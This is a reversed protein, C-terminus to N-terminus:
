NRRAADRNFQGLRHLSGEHRTSAGRRPTEWPQTLMSSDKTNDWMGGAELLNKAFTARATHQAPPGLNALFIRPRQGDRALALDSRDRLREFAEGLRHSPLPPLTGAPLAAAGHRSDRKGRAAPPDRHLTRPAVPKNPGGIFGAPRGTEAPKGERATCGVAWNQSGALWPKQCVITEAMCNWLVQCNGAWGHGTGSGGRDQVNIRGGRVNDYLQGCAWRHHPGIDAHSKEALCDLFVTPGVDLHGTVFDHRGNRAYCRQFLVFQGGGVFSYRRGGTIKSVPDLMACDQVTVRAATKGTAVCAYAFHVATVERVWSDVIRNITIANWAHREDSNEKGRQYVSELRLKEVGAGGQRSDAAKRLTGGGYRKEIACIVPTDLAVRDGRVGLVRGSWKVRYGAPDWPKGGPALKIQDMKLDHIWGANPALEVLVLDGPKFEGANEVRLSKSGLPLKEDLIAHVGGAARLEGSGEMRILTPSGGDAPVMTAVIVTGGIGQGMGRLTVGPPVALAKGWHDIGSELLVAGKVGDGPRAPHEAVRRIAAQIRDTDDARGIQPQLREVVPALPLAVGGHRFGAMSFDPIENGFPDPGPEAPAPAALGLM